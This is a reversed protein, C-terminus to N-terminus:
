SVVAINREKIVQSFYETEGETWIYHELKVQLSSTAHAQVDRESVHLHSFFIPEVKESYNLSKKLTTGNGSKVLNLLRLTKHLELAQIWQNM